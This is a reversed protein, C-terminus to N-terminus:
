GTATTDTNTQCKSYFFYLFSTNIIKDHGEAVTGLVDFDTFQRPRECIWLIVVTGTSWQGIDFGLTQLVDLCIADCPM